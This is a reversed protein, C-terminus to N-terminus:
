FGAKARAIIAEVMEIGVGKDIRLLPSESKYDLIWAVGEFRHGCSVAADIRMDKGIPVYALVCKPRMEEAGKDAIAKAM